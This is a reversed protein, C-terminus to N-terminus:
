IRMVALIYLIWCLISLHLDGIQTKGIYVTSCNPIHFVFILIYITRQPRKMQNMASFDANRVMPRKGSVYSQPNRMRRSPRSRKGRWRSLFFGRTLSGPMCWPVHTVCTDHHMDPDNVWPPLSFTGPMGPAHTVRLKTYRTLPWELYRRVVTPERHIATMYLKISCM